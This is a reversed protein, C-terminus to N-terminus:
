ISKKIPFKWEYWRLFHFKISIFLFISIIWLLWSYISSTSQFMLGIGQIMLITENLIIATAFGVLGIKALRKKVDIMGVEIYEALIYFSVMGLFVLHLFGIIIPRYGFVANSLSPIVTGTQLLM